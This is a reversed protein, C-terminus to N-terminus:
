TKISRAYLVSRSNLLPEKRDNKRRRVLPVYSFLCNIVNNLFELHFNVDSKQYIHEFSIHSLYSFFGSWNINRYYRYEFFEDLRVVDLNM